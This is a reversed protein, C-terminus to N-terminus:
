SACADFYIDVRILGAVVPGAWAEDPAFRLADGRQLTRGHLRVDRTAFAFRVEGGPDSLAGTDCGGSQVRSHCVGRRTMVNLDSVPGGTPRGASPVDGAFALGDGAKLRHAVGSVELALEGALVSLHRDIGTFCSFPGAVEVTALSIRWLFDEMGAGNPFVAVERTVGGGNKWPQPTLDAFPVLVPM